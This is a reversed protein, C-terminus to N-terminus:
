RGAQRAISELTRRADAHHVDTIHPALARAAAALVTADDTFGLGAIVDPILDAPTIFYAIAGVLIAKARAPTARDLAAHHAALLTVAFPVRGLAHALKAVLRRSRADIPRADGDAPSPV